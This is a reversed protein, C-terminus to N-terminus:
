IQIGCICIPIWILGLNEEEGSTFSEYTQNWVISQIIYRKENSTLKGRNYQLLSNAKLQVELRSEISKVTTEAIKSKSSNCFKWASKYLM